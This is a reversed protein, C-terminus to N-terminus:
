WWGMLLGIFWFTALAGGVVVLLEVVRRWGAEEFGKGGRRHAPTM